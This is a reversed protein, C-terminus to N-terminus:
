QEIPAEGLTKTWSVERYGPEGPDPFMDPPGAGGILDLLHESLREGVM